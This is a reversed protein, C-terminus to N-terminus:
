SLRRLFNSKTLRFFGADVNFTIDNYNLDDYRALLDQPIKFFIRFGYYIRDRIAQTLDANMHKLMKIEERTIDVLKSYMNITRVFDDIIAQKDLYNQLMKMSVQKFAIKHTAVEDGFEDVERFVVYDSVSVNMIVRTSYNLNEEKDFENAKILELPMASYIPDPPFLVNVLDSDSPAKAAELEMQLKKNKLETVIDKGTRGEGINTNRVKDNNSNNNGRQQNEDDINAITAGKIRGNPFTLESEDVEYTRKKNSQESM